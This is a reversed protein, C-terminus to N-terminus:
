ILFYVAKPLALSSLLQLTLVKRRGFHWSGGELLLRRAVMGRLWRTPRTALTATSPGAALHLANCYQGFSSRLQESCRGAM